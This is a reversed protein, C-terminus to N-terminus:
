TTDHFAAWISLQQRDHPAFVAPFRATPSWDNLCRWKKRPQAVSAAQGDGMERDFASVDGAALKNATRRLLFYRFCLRSESHAGVQCACVIYGASGTECRGIQCTQCRNSECSSASPKALARARRCSKWTAELHPRHM